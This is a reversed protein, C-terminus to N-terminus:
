GQSFRYIVHTHGYIKRRATCQHLTEVETPLCPPEPSPSKSFHWFARVKDLVRKHVEEKLLPHDSIKTKVTQLTIAEDKIEDKFLTKIADAMDEDWSTRSTNPAIAESAPPNSYLPPSDPRATQDLGRMVTHLQKSAEVFSKSKEQLRYYKTATQVNHAKLDALNERAEGSSTVTHVQSVASKHLITSSPNGDAKAKKWVSKIAKNIQSSEM